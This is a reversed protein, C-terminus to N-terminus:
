PRDQGPPPGAGDLGCVRRYLSAFEELMIDLSYTNQVRERGRRGLRAREPDPLSLLSLWGRCLAEPDRPPVVQGADGLMIASDGIDTVVCPTECALAELIVTPSAEGWASSITFLDFASMLRRIDDREGMLHVHGGLNEHEIWSALQVNSRDVDPGVLVWHLNRMGHGHVARGAAEILGRHDKMPHPRAIHGILRSEPGLGLESLVDARAGSDRTFLSTDCCNPIILRRRKAYGYAEHQAASAHSVYQVAVPYRSLLRGLFVLWRLERKESRLAGLTHHISWCVPVRRGRLSRGVLAAANGHYLWGQIVDPELEAIVRRLQMLFAPVGLVSPKPGIFCMPIGLARIDDTIISESRLLCVVHSDIDSGRLGRLLRALIKEAGGAYLGSIVHVV